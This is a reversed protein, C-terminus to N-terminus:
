ERAIPRADVEVASAEDTFGETTPLLTVKVAVIELV